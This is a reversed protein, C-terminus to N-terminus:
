VSTNHNISPSSSHSSTDSHALLKKVLEEPVLRWNATFDDGVVKVKQIYEVLIDRMQKSSRWLIRCRYYKCLQMARYSNVAVKYKRKLDFPKGTKSLRMNVIREGVPKTIDIEYNIGEAMDYNFGLFNKNILPVRFPDRPDIQNFYRSSRELHDKIQEGTMLLVYLNNEYQYLGYVDRIRIPGKKLTFHTTFAAALSIDATTAHFQARHILDVFANDQVRAMRSSIDCRAEGIVSNIYKLIRKHYPAYLKEIEPHPDVHRVSEITAYKRQLVWREGERGFHLHIVGLYRAHSGAMIVLPHSVDGANEPPHTNYKRHEHGAIIVDYEPFKEAITLCPNEEPIDRPWDPDTANPHVGAHFLGVVVDAKKQEKLYRIWGQAAPLMDQWRIGPFTEPNLWLPIAPTTLGLIAIRLGAIDRMTYPQFYSKGNKQLANASLWPFKLQKRVRNYVRPGQEIDHNGVSSATYEMQNMVRALPYPTKKDVYNYFYNLPSGQLFDGNDLLLTHPYKERYSQVLSAVRSLGWTTPKGLVYDYSIVSGHVDSTFLLVVELQKSKVVFLHRFFQIVRNKLNL